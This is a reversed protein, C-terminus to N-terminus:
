TSVIFVYDLKEIYNLKTGNCIKDLVYLNNQSVGFLKFLIRFLLLLYIFQKFIILNLPLGNKYSVQTVKQLKYIM